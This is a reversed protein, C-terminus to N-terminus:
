TFNRVMLSSQKKTQIPQIPQLAAKIEDLTKKKKQLPPSAKLEDLRNKRKTAPSVAAEEQIKVAFPNVNLQVVSGEEPFVNKAKREAKRSLLGRISGTDQQEGLQTLAQTQQESRPERQDNKQACSREDVEAEISRNLQDQAEIRAQLMTDLFSAIAPLGCHNAVKIGCKIARESKLKMSFNLALPVHGAHCYTQFLTLIIRETDLQQETFQVELEQMSASSSTQVFFDQANKLEEYHYLKAENWMLQDKTQDNILKSGINKVVPVRMQKVRLNPIPHIAPKKEGILLIYTLKDGQVIIPWYIHDITNRVKTIDLVPMWQWGMCNFLCSVIGASDVIHLFLSDLEFGIWQLTSRHSLPLSFQQVIRKANSCATTWDLNFIDVAMRFTDNVPLGQHYVVALRSNYGTMCVVPSCLWIIYLQVSTSSFIRLFGNQTAVAVWGKGVAVVIAEEGDDLTCRFSENSNKLLENKDQFALYYVTSGVTKIAVDASKMPPTAFVAGYDSLAAIAFGENNLFSQTQRGEDSFKIYIRSDSSVIVGVRNFVLFRRKEGDESTSSPQFPKQLQFEDTLTLPTTNQLPVALDVKLFNKSKIVLLSNDRCWIIKIPPGPKTNTIKKIPSSNEFKKQDVKWLLMKGTADCSVLFAGDPSFVVVALESTTGHSIAGSSALLIREWSEVGVKGRFAVIAGDTSPVVVLLESPSPMWAVKFGKRQFPTNNETLTKTSPLPPLNTCFVVRHKDGVKGGQVDLSYVSLTGTEDVVALWEEEVTNADTCNNGTSKLAFACVRKSPVKGEM